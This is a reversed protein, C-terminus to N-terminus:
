ADDMAQAKQFLNFGVILGIVLLIFGVVMIPHPGKGGLNLQSETDGMLSILEDRVIKIFQQAPTLSKLVEQGMAKETVSGVFGKVVKFNVDAELLTIRVEKLADQINKESLKGHGKLHKFTSNLKETLNEFM